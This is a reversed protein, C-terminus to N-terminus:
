AHLRVWTRVKVRARAGVWVRISVGLGKVKARVRVRLKDRLRMRSMLGLIRGHNEMEHRVKAHVSGLGLELRLACGLGMM